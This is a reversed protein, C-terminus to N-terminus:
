IGDGAHDDGNKGDNHLTLQGEEVDFSLQPPLKQDKAFQVLVVANGEATPSPLPRAFVSEVKPPDERLDRGPVQNGLDVIPTPTPSGNGGTGTQKCGRNCGAIALCCAFLIVARWHSRRRDRAIQPSTTAFLQRSYLSVIHLLAKVRTKM